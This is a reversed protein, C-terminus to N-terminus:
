QVFSDLNLQEEVSPQMVIEIRRNKGRGEETDNDAVPDTAGYGAASFHTESLAPADDNAPTTLYKLVSRARM